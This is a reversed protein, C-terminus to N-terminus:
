RVHTSARDSSDSARGKAPPGSAYPLAVSRESLARVWTLCLLCVSFSAVIMAVPGNGRLGLNWGFYEGTIVAGVGLAWIHSVGLPKKLAHDRLYAREEPKLDEPKLHAESVVENVVADLSRPDEAM